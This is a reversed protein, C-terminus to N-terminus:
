FSHETKKEKIKQKTSAQINTGWTRRSVLMEAECRPSIEILNKKGKKYCRSESDCDM